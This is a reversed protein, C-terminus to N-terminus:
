ASQAANLVLCVCCNCCCGCCRVLCAKMTAGSEREPDAPLLPAFSRTAAIRPLAALARGYEGASGFGWRKYARDSRSM